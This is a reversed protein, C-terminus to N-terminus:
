GVHSESAIQPAVVDIPEVAGAPQRLEALVTRAISEPLLAVADLPVVVRHGLTFIEIQGDPRLWCSGSYLRGDITQTWYRVRGPEESADSLDRGGRTEDRM